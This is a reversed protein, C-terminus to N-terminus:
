CIKRIIMQFIHLVKLDLESISIGFDFINVKSNFDAIFRPKGVENFYHENQDGIVELFYFSASSLKIQIAKKRKIELNKIRHFSM